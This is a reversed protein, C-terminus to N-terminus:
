CRPRRVERGTCTVTRARVAMPVEYVALVEEHDTLGCAERQIVLYGLRRAARRAAAEWCASRAGGTDQADVARFAELAEELKRGTRGLAEAREKRIEQLLGEYAESSSM